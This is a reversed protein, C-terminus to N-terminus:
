KTAPTLPPMAGKLMEAFTAMPDQVPAPNAAWHQYDESIQCSKQHVACSWDYLSQANEPTLYPKLWLIQEILSCTRIDFLPVNEGAVHVYMLPSTFHIVGYAVEKCGRQPLKPDKTLLHPLSQYQNHKAAHDVQAAIGGMLLGVVAGLEEKRTPTSIAQQFAISPPPVHFEANFNVNQPQSFWDHDQDM